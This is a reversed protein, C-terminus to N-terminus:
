QDPKSLNLQTKASMRQQVSDIQGDLLTFADAQQAPIPDAFRGQHLDDQAFLSGVISLPLHATRHPNGPEHLFDRLIETSRHEIDHGIPCAIQRVLDLGIMLEACLQRIRIVTPQQLPQGIGLMDQLRRVAPLQLLPYLRHDRSKGQHRIRLEGLKGAPELATHQEGLGQDVLRIQQQQILGGVVQIYIGDVPHFLKEEAIRTGQQEHGMVPGKQAAQCGADQFQIPPPERIPRSVILVVQPALRLQQVGLGQFVGAEILLQRLFLGPDALADLRAAGAVLATYSGELRHSMLMLLAAGQATLCLHLQM